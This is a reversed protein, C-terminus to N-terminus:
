NENSHQFFPPLLKRPTFWLKWFVAFCSEAVGIAIGENLFWWCFRRDWQSGCAEGKLTQMRRSADRPGREFFLTIYFQGEWPHFIIDIFFGWLLLCVLNPVNFNLLRLISKQLHVCLSSSLTITKEHASFCFLIWTIQLHFIGGRQLLPTFKRRRERQESAATQYVTPM